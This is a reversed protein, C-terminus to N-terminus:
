LQPRELSDVWSFSSANIIKVGCYDALQRIREYGEFMKAACGLFFAVTYAQGKDAGKYGKEKRTGYFHQNELYMENTKQDVRMMTHMSTDIGLMWVEEYGLIVGLGGAVNAVTQAPPSIWGKKLLWLGLRGSVGARSNYFYLKIKHNAKLSNVFDSNRASDPVILNMDWTVRNILAERLKVYNDRFTSQEMFVASKFWLPDALLYLRPCLETFLPSTAFMNMAVSDETQINAKYRKLDENFSPGTALVFLRRSKKEIERLTSFHRRAFVWNSFFYLVMPPLLWDKAFERISTKVPM